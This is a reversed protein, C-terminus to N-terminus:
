LLDDLSKRVNPYKFEFGDGTLKEPIAKQGKIVMDASEGLMIRLAFEPVKMASPRGLANGVAEAFEKMRVIGPAAANVPGDINSQIAYKYISVIDEHHVWPFWQRGSGLPGGVMANFAPLMKALAGEDPHLVIGTRIKAVRCKGSAMDAASEWDRCVRALFDDGPPSDENAQRDGSDGYYGVASASVLVDPPNGSASIAEALLRTGDTRSHYIKQKYDDTWRKAGISAGALNVVAHAGEITHQWTDPKDYDWEVFEGAFPLKKAASNANRTYVIINYGDEALSNSLRSGIFGTAGTIVISKM